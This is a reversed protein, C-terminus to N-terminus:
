WSVVVKQQHKDRVVVLPVSREGSTSRMMVVEQLQKLSTIPQGNAIVIVDGTKLGGRAAPTEDTVDTVLVGPDIKLSKALDVSVTSMIAGFAGNATFILTKFPVM